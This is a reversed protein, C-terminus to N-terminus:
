MDSEAKVVMPMPTFAKDKIPSLPAKVPPAVAVAVATHKNFHKYLLFAGVIALGYGILHKTGKTM